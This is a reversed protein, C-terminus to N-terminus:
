KDPLRLSVTPVRSSIHAHSHLLGAVAYVQSSPQSDQNLKVKVNSFHLFAFM